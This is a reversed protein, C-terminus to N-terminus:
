TYKPKALSSVIFILVFAIACAAHFIVLAEHGALGSASFHLTAIEGAAAMAWVVYGWALGSWLGLAAVPQVVALYAVGWRLENSMTDFRVDPDSFGIVQMWRAITLGVFIIALAKCFFHLLGDIRFQTRESAKPKEM